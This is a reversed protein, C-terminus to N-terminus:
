VRGHDHNGVIKANYRFHAIVHGDHIRPIHHFLARSVLNEVM